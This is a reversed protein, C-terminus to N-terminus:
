AEKQRRPRPHMIWPSEEVHGGQMVLKTKKQGEIMQEDKSEEAVNQAGQTLIEENPWYPAEILPIAHDHLRQPPLGTPKNFVKRYTHVLMALEPDLDKPFESFEDEVSDPTQLQVTFCEAIADTHHFRRIHHFQANQPLAPRDGQLTIFKGNLMFKFQLASYDAVHPGLTSLWAAGLILDAGAVPLLYVPCHLEHGQVEIALDPILGEATMSHGNGVMVHFQAGPQIPLSLFQAVRPQLFNDSSGGDLLIRVSHGKIRGSFRITGLGSNGKLANFSLHHEQEANDEVLETQQATDETEPIEDEVQMIMFHRNPCKHQPTFKDDCTYCLGKERRVQMEAPTMKRIPNNPTNHPNATVQYTPKQNPTPLLPPQYNHIKPYTYSHNQNTPQKYTPKPKYTYKEEYLKALSVAKLLSLPSQAIVDRKIEPKLGSIFCDLLADPSPCEFQSPGFELELAKTFHKWSQFPQMRTIMQFWPVVEKDLHVAAITLRHDNPTDYFEFFQEAKFIWSLVESGDFRPFDIKVNRVQFPPKIGQPPDTQHPQTISMSSLM